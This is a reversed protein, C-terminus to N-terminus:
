FYMHGPSLSDNEGSVFIDLNGDNNIDLWNVKGHSLGPLDVDIKEFTQAFSLNSCIFSCIFFIVATFIIKSKM